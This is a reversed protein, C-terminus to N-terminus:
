KKVVSLIWDGIIKLAEPSFTEELEGYEQITCKTCDQFLHNLGPLEITKYNPSKSKKLAAQIAPLNVKPDVQIDKM